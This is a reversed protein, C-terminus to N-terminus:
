SWTTYASRVALPVLEISERSDGYVSSYHCLIPRQYMPVPQPTITYSGYSSTGEYQHQCDIAAGEERESELMIIGLNEGGPLDKEQNHAKDGDEHPDAHYEEERVVRHARAQGVVLLDPCDLSQPLILRTDLVLMELDFLRQFAQLVRM